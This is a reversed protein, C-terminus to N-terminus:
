HEDGVALDDTVDVGDRRGDDPPGGTQAGLDQPGASRVDVNDNMSATCLSVGMLVVGTSCSVRRRSSYRSAALASWTTVQFSLVRRWMVWGRSTRQARSSRRDTWSMTSAASASTSAPSARMMWYLPRVGDSNRASYRSATAARWATM